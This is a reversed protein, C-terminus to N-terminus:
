MQTNQKGRPPQTGKHTHIRPCSMSTRKCSCETSLPLDPPTPLQAIFREPPQEGVKKGASWGSEGKRRESQAIVRCAAFPFPLPFKRKQEGLKHFFSFFAAQSKVKFLNQPTRSLFNRKEKKDRRRKTTTVQLSPTCQFFCKRNSDVIKVTLLGEKSHFIVSHFSM